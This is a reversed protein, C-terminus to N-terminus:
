SAAHAHHAEGRMMAKAWPKLELMGPDAEPLVLSREFTLGEMRVEVSRPISTM